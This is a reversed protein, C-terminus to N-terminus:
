TEPTLISSHCLRYRVSSIKCGPKVATFLLPIMENVKGLRNVIKIM